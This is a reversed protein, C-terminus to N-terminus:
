APVTQFDCFAEACLTMQNAEIFIWRRQFDRSLPQRALVGTAGGIGPLTPRLDSQQMTRKSFDSLPERGRNHISDQGIKAYAAQLQVVCRSAKAKLRFAGQIHP